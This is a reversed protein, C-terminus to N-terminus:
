ADRGVLEGITSELLDLEAQCDASALEVTRNERIYHICTQPLRDLRLQERAAAAYIGLQLRYQEAHQEYADGIVASTKYDIIMWDGNAQQLLVDLVGHIVRKESRFMFPLETYLARHEARASQLWRYVDSEAYQALLERVEQLASGVIDSNTLGQEWAISTIMDDTAQKSLAFSGYRLLEHVIEGIIVPTAGNRDLALVSTASPLGQLSSERFRKGSTQKQRESLGHRYAGLDAIQTASIHTSLPAEVQPLPKLLPPMCPPYDGEDADFDWLDDAMNASRYLVDPAPPESPMLVSVLEGEFDHDQRTPRPGPPPADMALASLLQQLWGRTSWQDDKNLTFQGSIILYDQARTAAVYLLRKREAAEKLTQLTANRRHAFGSLYKNSESDYVQCSLGFVPDALLTPAGGGGRAWSADALIVLPFELGKSAHVTMLRVANHAELPAEGERVERASLDTLYQSFKGLTIKGSAEALHLLKEINGRRRAGDPLGTLIALYNTKSLAQRLLESITVRGSIRSLDTLTALAYRLLPIDAPVMGRVPQEAAIKLARWLALPTTGADEGERILRLAFLLDDSFAFIPSRLVTALALDDAPNHLCRLLELMDWVEQRDYYGRGAVTLYPIEQSKFSDEYLTVNTMSQFLIAIDMYGMDRWCGSEKDVVKRKEAILTKVRSAIEYAEWRRMDESPYRQRSGRRDLVYSGASDRLGYDLLQLEIASAPPSEARFAKMPQDFVVQYDKVPSSEDRVLLASFLANFQEVLKRHSRFSTSLPLELGTELKTFQARVRNFVSVDAGRFQYISQKPDGVAFLSGGTQLDALSRIIQWQAANTDQFEDVLLHKFETGRYRARVAHDRLLEAALRELDDFDLQANNRKRERYDTRAQALLRHWLPLVTATLRDLEGPPEGLSAITEKIGERLDRLRRAVEAKVGKGGWAKVSGKNGVAGERQCDDLLRYVTPADAEVSVQLLYDRYQAILNALKDNAPLFELAEIAKVEDSHLLRQREDFALEDWQQAWLGLVAEPDDDAIPYDSNVLNMQKLAQDIRYGDYQAFLSALPAEISALADAVVEDLLIAAETEDLVVFQPDIGAQAANARLIAACLGHITDIRASDLRSLHHAWHKGDDAQSRRELELRLRHRMEFAAERTFTIAVLAGINWDPNDALLQIYREVLVRTKGSGAGAVVILNKDHIHIADQQESTHQM